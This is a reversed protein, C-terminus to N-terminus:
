NEKAYKKADEFEISVIKTVGKEEMTVGFITDAHRMTPKRHTIVIFQTYDSFKKLFEAFLNVNSDDLAAEIEDLVCFPMPKLKLIAFLIAIATLAQEGGSLLSINKLTKGPPQAYIAIGCELVDDTESTDLRLEGKGGGFLQEFTIKFNSNISEFATLFKDKMEGTLVNIIQIIDDYAKQIDDRQKTQEELRIESDKLTEVALLNVPGLKEIDKKLVSIDHIALEKDFENDRYDVATSYTLNYEELIHNQLNRIEIDINELLSENKVKKGTLQIIQENFQQKANDTDSIEKSITNKRQDFEEIKAKLQEIKILDEKSFDNKVSSKFDNLIAENEKISSITLIKNDEFEGKETNLRFLDTEAQNFLSKSNELQIKLDMIESSLKNLEDTYENKSDKTTQQSTQVNKKKEDVIKELEKIKNLQNDLETLSNQASILDSNHTELECNLNDYSQKANNLRESYLKVDISLKGIQNSATDIKQKYEELEKVAEDKSEVFSKINKELKGISVKKSEIAQEQSLFGSTSNRRSGGTIEGGRTFIEGELTVIRFGQNYKKYIRVANDINNVIVTAGLLTKIVGAFKKDYGILDSALGFCGPEDLVGLYENNLVAPRCSTLPRFTVRGYNKQKLYTILDSADQEDEVIINQLAGGLAYDIAAEYDKPVTILNALVGLIKNSINDNNKADLMLRKVSEQYTTYEEKIKILLELAANEKYLQNNLADIDAKYSEISEEIEKKNILYENYESISDKLLKDNKEYSSEYISLNTKTENLSITKQNILESLSEIRSEVIGKEKIYNSMNNTLINLQEVASAYDLNSLEWNSESGSLKASLENYKKTLVEISHSIQIQDNFSKEKNELCQNILLTKEELSHDIEIIEDNLRQLESTVHDIKEKILSADGSAKEANISLSLLENHEESLERDISASEIMLLEYKKTARKYSEDAEKLSANIKDLRDYVSQKIEQNHEYNYLYLNIEKNKLDEKLEKYRNATEAQKRLPGINHEIEAILENATQLNMSTKELNREAEVRQARFKSIGAAEEFINRREDPKASLIESVRGQGIISYGDKGIGTDHILNIIDKMRVKNHNIFYESDGSRDLKRTFVVEDFSISPFLRQNTNDFTLSVEAYSMSKRKETGAFIVDTMSRGRLQKARHEGLAWKIAEAVNSKGCGNPGIIATVGEQFPIEVKDAFSKFGRLEIKVFNLL